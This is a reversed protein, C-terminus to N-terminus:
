EMLYISSVETKFGVVKEIQFAVCKKNQICYHACHVRSHVIQRELIGLESRMEKSVKKFTTSTLGVSPYIILIMVLKTCNLKAMDSPIM